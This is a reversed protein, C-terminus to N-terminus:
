KRDLSLYEILKQLAKARHSVAGKETLTMQAFTKDYGDPIFISDYGFGQEGHREHTIKGSCIGEFLCDGGQSGLAIVTVFRANRDQMRGLNTLLLDINANNDKQEGAYRATHVGPENNLSSVLLETDDAFVPLDFRQRVYSTKLIANGSITSATEPIEDHLGIDTLSLLKVHSPMLVQIEILKNKNHTAFILEM